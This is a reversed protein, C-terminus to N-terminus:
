RPLDNDSTRVHGWTYINSCESFIVRAFQLMRVASAPKWDNAHQSQKQKGCPANTGSAQANWGNGWWCGPTKERERNSARPTTVPITQDSGCLTSALDVIASQM